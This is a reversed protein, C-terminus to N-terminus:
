EELKYIDPLNRYKGDFDLGYGIIFGNDNMVIGPYEVILGNKSTHPKYIFATIDVSAAGSDLLIKKISELTIGTDVIDDILIIERGKIDENLGILSTLNGTSSMGEYSAYKIFTVECDFTIKKILDSTYMFAGNLVCVFLVNSKDAYKENLNDAVIKVAADIEQSSIYKKFSRGHVIKPEM